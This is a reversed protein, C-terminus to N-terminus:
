GRGGSRRVLRPLFTIGELEGQLVVQEEAAIDGPTEFSAPGGYSNSVISVKDQDDIKAIAAELDGNLCSRAGYYVVHAAPAIGHSAEVDLTEEGAWDAPTQCQNPHLAFTELARGSEVADM